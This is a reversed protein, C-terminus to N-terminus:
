REYVERNVVPAPREGRLVTLANEAVARNVARVTEASNFASHPTLICNPAHALVYGEDPPECRHADMAAGALRGEHLALALAQEDVLKGRATNILFATPKMLALADADILNESDASASAHLTLVDSERLLTELDTLTVSLAAAAEPDPAVDYALVRMKFGQARRAVARGIAGFGVIGLTKQWVDVGCIEDWGCSRMTDVCTCLKRALALMLMFTFDGVANATLGPTNTVIVGHRTAAALDIADVGIGWRSIVKLRDAPPFVSAEFRDNGAIVADVGPLIVALEEATMPRWEPGEVVECGADTLPRASEPMESRFARALALVKGNM